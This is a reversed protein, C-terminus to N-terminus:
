RGSRLTHQLEDLVELRNEPYIFNAYSMANATHVWFKQNPQVRAKESIKIELAAWTKKYLLTWDPFGQLYRPDNKLVIIGPYIEEIQRIVDFQFESENM